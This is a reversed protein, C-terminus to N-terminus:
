LLRKGVFWTLADGPVATEYIEGLDDLQQNKQRLKM